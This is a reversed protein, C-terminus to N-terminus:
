APPAVGLRDNPADPHAIQWGNRRYLKQFQYTPDEICVPVTGLYVSRWRDASATDALFFVYEDGGTNLQMVDYGASAAAPTLAHLVLGVSDGAEMEITDELSVTTAEVAEPWAIGYAAFLPRFDEFLDETAVRWDHAILRDTMHLAYGLSAMPLADGRFELFFNDDDEVEGDWVMRALEEAEADGGSLERVALLTQARDLQQIGREALFSGYVEEARSRKPADQKEVSSKRGFLATLKQLISM